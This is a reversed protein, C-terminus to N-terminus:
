SLVPSLKILIDRLIEPPKRDANFSFILKEPYKKLLAKTKNRYIEMRTKFIEPDQDDSRKESLARKQLRQFLVEENKVELVIVAVVCLYKKLLKVQNETRPIGDLILLQKKPYYRNTAILGSLYYHWIEVTVDDPVLQGKSAYRHFVKGAPTEPPLSRFIEGGSLHFHSGAASILKGITGKGSGPPGFLLISEFKKPFPRILSPSPIPDFTRKEHM